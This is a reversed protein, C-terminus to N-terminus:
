NNNRVINMFIGLKFFLSERMEWKEDFGCVLIMGRTARFPTSNTAYDKEWFRAENEEAKGSEDFSTIVRM